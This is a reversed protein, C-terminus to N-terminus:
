GCGRYGAASSVIERLLRDVGVSLGSEFGLDLALRLHLLHLVLVLAFRM